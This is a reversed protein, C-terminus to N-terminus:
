ATFLVYWGLVVRRFRVWPKRTRIRVLFPRATMLRRRALPRLRRATQTEWGTKTEPPPRIKGSAIRVATAEHRRPPHDDHKLSIIDPRPAQPQGDAAFTAASGDAITSFPDHPLEEALLCVEQRWAKVNDDHGALSCVNAAEGQCADTFFKHGDDLAEM